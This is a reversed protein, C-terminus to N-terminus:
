LSLAFNICVLIDFFLKKLKFPRLRSWKKAQLGCGRAGMKM